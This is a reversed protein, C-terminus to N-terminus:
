SNLCLVQSNGAWMLYYDKYSKIFDDLLIIFFLIITGIVSQVLTQYVERFRSKKYVDYYESSLAYLLVWLAPVVIIGKYFQSDFVIPEMEIYLKRFSFFLVWACIASLLDTIVYLIIANRKNHM